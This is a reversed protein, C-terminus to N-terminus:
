YYAIRACGQCSSHWMCAAMSGAITCSSKATLQHGAHSFDQQHTCDQHHAIHAVGSLVGWAVLVRALSTSRRVGSTM